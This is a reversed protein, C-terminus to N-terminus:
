EEQEAVLKERLALRGRLSSIEPQAVTLISAHPRLCIHQLKPNNRYLWSLHSKCICNVIRSFSDIYSGTLHIRTHKICLLSSLDITIRCSFRIFRQVNNRIFQNGYKSDINVPMGRISRIHQRNGVITLGITMYSIFCNSHSITIAICNNCDFITCIYTFTRIHESCQITTLYVSLIHVSAIYRTSENRRILWNSVKCRICTDIYRPINARTVTQKLLLHRNM